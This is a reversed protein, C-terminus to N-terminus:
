GDKYGGKKGTKREPTIWNEMKGPGCTRAPMPSGTKAFRQMSMMVSLAKLVEDGITRFSNALVTELPKPSVMHRSMAKDPHLHSEPNLRSLHSPDM